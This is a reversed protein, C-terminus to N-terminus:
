SKFLKRMANTTEPSYMLFSNIVRADIKGKM